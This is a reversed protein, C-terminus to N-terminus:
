EAESSADYDALIQQILGLEIAIQGDSPPASDEGKVRALRNMGYAWVIVGPNELMFKLRRSPYTSSTVFVDGARKQVVSPEIVQAQQSIATAHSTNYACILAFYYESKGRWFDAKTADGAALFAIEDEGLQRKPSGIIMLRADPAKDYALDIEALIKWVKGGEIWVRDPSAEPTYDGKLGIGVILAGLRFGEIDAGEPLAVNQAVTARSVGQEPLPFNASLDGYVQFAAKDVASRFSNLVEQNNM